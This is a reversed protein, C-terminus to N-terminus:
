DRRASVAIDTALTYYNGADRISPDLALLVDRKEAPAYLKAKITYRGPKFDAPITFTYDEVHVPDVADPMWGRNRSDLEFDRTDLGELRIRLVYAHYAPAVGRNEWAMRIM